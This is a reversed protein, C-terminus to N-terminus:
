EDDTREGRSWAHLTPLVALAGHQAARAFWEICWEHVQLAWEEWTNGCNNAWCLASCQQALEAYYDSPGDARLFPEVYHAIAWRERMRDMRVMREIADRTHPHKERLARRVSPAPAFRRPQDPVDSMTINTPLPAVGESPALPRDM